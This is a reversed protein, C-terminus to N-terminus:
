GAVGTAERRSCALGISVQEGQTPCFGEPVEDALDAEKVADSIANRETTLETAGQPYWDPTADM